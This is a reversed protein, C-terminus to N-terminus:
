YCRMLKEIFRSPTIQSTKPIKNCEVLKEYFENANLDVGDYYDKGEINVILPILEIGYNKAEEKTIDSASDILIKISM